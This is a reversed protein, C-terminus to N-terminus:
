YDIVGHAYITIQKIQNTSSAYVEFIGDTVTEGLPATFIVDEGEGTLAINQVEVTPPLEISRNNPDEPDYGAGTFLVYQDTELHVGHAANNKGSAAERQALRLYGVMEATQANLDARIESFAGHVMFLGLSIMILALVIVIELITFARKKM